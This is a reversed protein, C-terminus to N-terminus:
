AGTGAVGAPLNYLVKCQARRKGRRSFGGRLDTEGVRIQPNPIPYTNLIQSMAQSYALM